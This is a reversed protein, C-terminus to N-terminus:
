YLEHSHDMFDLLNTLKYSSIEVVTMFYNHLIVVVYLNKFIKHVSKFNKVSYFNKIM